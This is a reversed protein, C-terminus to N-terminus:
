LALSQSAWVSSRFSEALNKVAPAVAGSKVRQGKTGKHQFAKECDSVHFYAYREGACVFGIVRACASAPHNLAGAGGTFGPQIREEDAIVV